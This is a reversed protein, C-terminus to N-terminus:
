FSCSLGITGTYRDIFVDPQAGIQEYEYWVGARLQWVPSLQYNLDTSIRHNVYRNVQENFFGVLTPITGTSGAVTINSFGDPLYYRATLVGASANTSRLTSYYGRLGFWFNGMYKGVEGTYLTVDVRDFGMYRVGGNIELGLPLGHYIEAGGKLIPFVGNNTGYGANLYLYTKKALQPYVDAEIQHGQVGFRQAWNYRIATPAGKFRRMYEVSAMHWPTRTPSGQLYYNVGVQNKLTATLVENLLYRASANHPTQALIRRLATEAETSRGINHLIEARKLKLVMSTDQVNLLREVIPLADVMNKAWMRTDLLALWADTFEPHELVLPELYHAASDYKGEWNYTRAMLIIAEYENPNSKLLTRIEARAARYQGSFAKKQASKYSVQARAMSTSMVMFMAVILIRSVHASLSSSFLSM